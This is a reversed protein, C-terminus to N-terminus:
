ILLYNKIIGRMPSYNYHTSRKKECVYCLLEREERGNNGKRKKKKDNKKIKKLKDGDNYVVNKKEIIGKKRQANRVNRERDIM